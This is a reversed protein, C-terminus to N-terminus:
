RGGGCALVGLPVRGDEAALPRRVSSRDVWRVTVGSGTLAAALATVYAGADFAWGPDRADKDSAADLWPVILTSAESGAGVIELLMTAVAGPDEIVTCGRLPGGPPWPSACAGIAEILLERGIADSGPTAAGTSLSRIAELTSTRFLDEDAPRILDTAPGDTGDLRRVGRVLAVPMRADKGMVLGSAAAIEDALAVVTAELPRGRDDPRGRLDVAAPVGACGIAVNVVGTRWARGFTDTIIVGLRIGLSERLGHRIREATADPDLPLLALTGADLNSADVGANACVFGHRTEAIVLDGRRAVVRQTEARVAAGRDDGPVLRGEAKSVIKSTIVVVDDDRAGAALLVPTVIAVLDDGPEVEPIGELGVIELASGDSV